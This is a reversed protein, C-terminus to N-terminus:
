LLEGKARRKWFINDKKHVNKWKFKLIPKDLEM